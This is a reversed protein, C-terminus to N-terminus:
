WKFSGKGQMPLLFGPHIRLWCSLETGPLQTCCANNATRCVNVDHLWVSTNTLLFVYKSWIFFKHTCTCSIPYM